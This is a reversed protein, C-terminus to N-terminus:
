YQYSAQETLHDVQNRSHIILQISSIKKIIYWICLHLDQVKFLKGQQFFNPYDASPHNLHSLHIKVNFLSFYNEKSM